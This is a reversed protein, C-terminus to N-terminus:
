IIQAVIKPKKIKLENGLKDVSNPPAKITEEPTNFKVGDRYFYFDSAVDVLDNDHEHALSEHAWTQSRSRRMTGAQNEDNNLYKAKREKM